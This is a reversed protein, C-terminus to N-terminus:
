AGEGRRRPSFAQDSDGRDRVRQYINITGANRRSGCAQEGSLGASVPSEGEPNIIAPFRRQIERWWQIWWLYRDESISPARQSFM